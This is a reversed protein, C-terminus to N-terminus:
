GEYWAPESIDEAALDDYPEEDATALVLALSPVPAEGADFTRQRLDAPDASDLAARVKKKAREMRKRYNSPSIEKDGDAVRREVLEALHRGGTGYGDNRRTWIEYDLSDLVGSAVTDERENDFALVRWARAAFNEIAAGEANLRLAYRTRNADNRPRSPPTKSRSRVGERIAQRWDIPPVSVAEPAHAPGRFLMECRISCFAYGDEPSLEGTPIWLNESKKAPEVVGDRLLDALTHRPYGCVVCREESPLKSWWPDGFLSVRGVTLSHGSELIGGVDSSRSRGPRAEDDNTTSPVHTSRPANTAVPGVGGLLLVQTNARAAERIARDRKWDEPSDDDAPERERRATRDDELADDISPPADKWVGDWMRLGQPPRPAAAVYAALEEPRMKRRAVATGGANDDDGDDTKPWGGPPPEIPVGVSRLVLRLAKRIETRVHSALSASGRAKAQGRLAQEAADLAHTRALRMAERLDDESLRDESTRYLLARNRLVKYPYDRTAHFLIHSKLQEIVPNPYAPPDGALWAQHYIELARLPSPHRRELWTELASM